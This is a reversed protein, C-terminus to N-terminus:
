HSTQDRLPGFAPRTKREKIFQGFAPKNVQYLGRCQLPVQRFFREDTMLVGECQLWEAGFSAVFDAGREAILDSVARRALHPWVTHDTIGDCDIIHRRGFFAIGGAQYLAVRTNTPTNKALWEGIKYDLNYFYRAKMQYIDIHHTYDALLMLAM